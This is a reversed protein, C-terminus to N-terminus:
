LRLVLSLDNEHNKRNGSKHVSLWVMVVIFIYKKKTKVHMGLRVEGFNGSGISKGVIRFCVFM